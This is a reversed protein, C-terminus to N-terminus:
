LSHISNNQGKPDINNIPPLRYWRQVLLVINRLNIFHMKNVYDRYVFRRRRFENTRLKIRSYKCKFSLGVPNKLVHM